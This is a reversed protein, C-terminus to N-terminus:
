PLSWMAGAPLPPSFRGRPLGPCPGPHRPDLGPGVRRMHAPHGAPPRAATVPQAAMHARRRQGTGHRGPGPDEPPLRDHHRTRRRSIARPGDRACGRHDESRAVVAAAAVAALALSRALAYRLDARASPDANPLAAISFGLSTSASAATIIACVWFAATMAAVISARPVPRGPIAVFGADSSRRNRHPAPGRAEHGLRSGGAWYMSRAARASAAARTVASCADGPAAACLLACPGAGGAYTRALAAPEGLPM